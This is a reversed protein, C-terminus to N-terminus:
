IHDYASKVAPAFRERELNGQPALPLFFSLIYVGLGTNLVSIVQCRETIKERQLIDPPPIEKRGRETIKERFFIIFRQSFRYL